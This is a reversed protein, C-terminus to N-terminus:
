LRDLFFQNMLLPKAQDLTQAHPPDHRSSRLCRRDYKEAAVLEDRFSKLHPNYRAAVM